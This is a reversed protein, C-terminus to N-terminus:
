EISFALGMYVQQDDEGPNKGHLIHGHSLHRLRYGTVWRVDDTLPVELGIGIEGTFNTCTGEEPVSRSSYIAGILEEGFFAVPQPEDGFEWFYWRLGLQFEAAHADGDGQNYNRYPTLAGMLALRDRLFHNYGVTAGASDGRGDTDFPHAFFGTLTLQHEGRRHPGGACGGIVVVLLMALSLPWRNAIACNRV